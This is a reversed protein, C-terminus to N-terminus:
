WKRECKELKELFLEAYRSLYIVRDIDLGYENVLERLRVLHAERGAPYMVSGIDAAYIALLCMRVVDEHREDLVSFVRDQAIVAALDIGTEGCREVFKEIISRQTARDEAKITRLDMLESM